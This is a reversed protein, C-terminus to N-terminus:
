KENPKQPTKNTPSQGGTFLYGVLLGIASLILAAVILTSPEEYWEHEAHAFDIM